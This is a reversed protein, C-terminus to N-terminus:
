CIKGFTCCVIENNVSSGSDMDDFLPNAILLAAYFTLILSIKFIQNKWNLLLAMALEREFSHDKFNSNRKLASWFESEHMILKERYEDLDSEM